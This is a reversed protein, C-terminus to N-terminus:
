SLVAAVAAIAGIITWVALTIKVWAAFKARFPLADFGDDNAAKAAIGPVLKNLHDPSIPRVFRARNVDFPHM